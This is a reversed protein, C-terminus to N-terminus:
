MQDSFIQVNTSSPLTDFQQPTNHIPILTESPDPILTASETSSPLNTHTTSTSQKPPHTRVWIIKQKSYGMRHLTEENYFDTHRLEKVSEDTPISLGLKRFLLTFVMGYPLSFKNKGTAEGIYTVMMSAMNFPIAELVHYM